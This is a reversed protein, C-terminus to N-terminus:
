RARPSTPKTPEPAPAPASTAPSSTVRPAPAASAPTPNEKWSAPLAELRAQLAENDPQAFRDGVKVPHSVRLVLAYSVTDFVRFVFMHGIQEDPLKVFERKSATRDQITDGTQLLAFVHGIEVGDRAGRNLTVISQTGAQDVGGYISVLRGTIAREPARPVYNILSQREIPILRDGVGIEEKSDQIRMTAVEGRKALRASGLYFAEYAIPNKRVKDDPDYLARAPRFVHYNEARADTLGRAYALDGRGLFVRGEQAAIIRPYRQLEAPTIVLPRSLFPEIVNGPISPIYAREGDIVRVQPAMRVTDGPQGPLGSGDAIRLTATGDGRVLVLTQGPYILHPNRVQEKNMGWLEPWRWPTTLFISSIDWLTDGSKVTYSDPATPSLASLPVGAQAVQDATRRQQDTVPYRGDATTQAMAPLALLSGASYLLAALARRSPRICPPAFSTM